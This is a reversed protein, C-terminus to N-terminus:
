SADLAAGGSAETNTAWHLRPAVVGPRRVPLRSAQGAAPLAPSIEISLADDVRFALTVFPIGGVFSLTYRGENLLGGPISCTASFVGAARPQGDTGGLDSDFSSFVTTGDGSKVELGVNCDPLARLVRYRIKVDLARDQTLPAGAGADGSPAVSVALLRIDADGPGDEGWERHPVGPAMENLYASVVERADGALRVQGRHLWYARSCLRTVAAMNHSVFIVTRGSDSVQSMKGLCKRQFGVDGVALVEDVMLIEPKLHAAVAFGLRLYMGSSYHKVPTDIYEQVEAFAVIEEFQQRIEDRRMGLLAGSLYVNERGTLEPHFGTGVELLSGVRGRVEAWGTSPYVIRSLIKLLTSKGAGNAGVLGIIEGERIELDVDRLAWHTRGSPHATHSPRRRRRFASALLDRLTGGPRSLGLPYEKGLGQARIVVPRESPM